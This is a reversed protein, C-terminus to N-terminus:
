SIHRNAEEEGVENIFPTMFKEYKKWKGISGCHLKDRVQAGSATKVLNGSKTFSLLDDKWQIGCFETLTKLTQEPKRVLDEYQLETYFDEPLSKRWHDSLRKYFNHTKGLEQLSNSYEHPKEFNMSFCSFAVDAANRRCNIVKADPLIARILWIFLINSPLKDTFRGDWGLIERVSSMYSFALKKRNEEIRLTVPIRELSEGALYILREGSNQMFPMEGGAKVDSTGTIIQELLTTGSRMLGVIFIPSKDEGSSSPLSDFFDKDFLDKFVTEYKYYNSYNFGGTNSMARISNGASFHRFAKEYDGTDNYIKGLAFNVRLKELDKLGTHLLKEELMPAYSYLEKGNLVATLFYYGSLYDPSVCIAKRYLEAAKELNGMSKHTDGISSLVDPNDPFLETLKESYLEIREPDRFEYSAKFLMPVLEKLPVGKEIGQELVDVAKKYSGWSLFCKAVGTYGDKQTPCLDTLALYEPLAKRMRGSDELMNAYAQIYIKSSPSRKRAYEIFPLASEISDLKSLAMGKLFSTHPSSKGDNIKKEVFALTERYKGSSFLKWGKKLISNDTFPNM